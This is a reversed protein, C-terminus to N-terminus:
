EGEVKGGQKVKKGTEREKRKEEREGEREKKKEEREIRWWQMEDGGGREKRVEERLKLSGKRTKKQIKNKIKTEL